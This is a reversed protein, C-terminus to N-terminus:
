SKHPAHLLFFFRESVSRAFRSVARQRSFISQGGSFSFSSSRFYHTLVGQYAPSIINRHYPCECIAEVPIGLISIFVPTPAIGSSDSHNVGASLDLQWHDPFLHSYTLSGSDVNSTGAKRSYAYYSRSYSAGVTDRATLRYLVSVGGTVGRTSIPTAFPNGNLSQPTIYGNYLFNGSFVYSLRRTQMYTLRLGVNAFRSELSYPNGPTTSTISSASYFSTGAALIGAQVDTLFTWHRNLRKNYSLALTQQQGSGISSSQYDRYAGRYNITFGGDSFTHSATLGGGAEWGFGGGYTEAGSSNVGQRLARIGSM